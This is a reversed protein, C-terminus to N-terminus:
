VVSWWLWGNTTEVQWRRHDHLHGVSLIHNTSNSLHVNKLLLSSIQFFLLIIEFFIFKRVATIQYSFFIQKYFTKEHEVCYTAHSSKLTLGWYDGHRILNKQTFKKKWTFLRSFILWTRNNRTPCYDPSVHWWSENISCIIVISGDYIRNISVLCSSPGTNALKWRQRKKRRKKDNASFLHVSLQTNEM